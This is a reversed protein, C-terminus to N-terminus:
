TFEEVSIMLLLGATTGTIAHTHLVQNVLVDTTGFHCGYYGYPTNAMMKWYLFTLCLSTM